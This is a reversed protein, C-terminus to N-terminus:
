GRVSTCQESTCKHDIQLYILISRKIDFLYEEFHKKLDETMVVLTHLASNFVAFIHMKFTLVQTSFDTNGGSSNIFEWMGQLSSSLNKMLYSWNQDSAHFCGLVFKLVAGSALEITALTGARFDQWAKRWFSM